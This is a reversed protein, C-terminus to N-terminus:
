QKQEMIYRAVNAITNKEAYQERRFENPVVINYKRQLQDIFEVASAQWGTPDLSFIKKLTTNPDVRSLGTVDQLIEVINETITEITEKQEFENELEKNM